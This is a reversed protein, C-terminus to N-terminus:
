RQLQFGYRLSEEAGAIMGPVDVMEALRGELCIVVERISSEQRSLEECFQTFMAHFAAVAPFGAAGAGLLPFALRRYGLERAKHMANRVVERICEESPGERADLDLVVAHFIRRAPLTGPGTIAVDGRRMPIRCRAEEYIEEGGQERICRASGSSMTLYNDDSSVLVDAVVGTVAGQRVLIQGEGVALTGLTLGADEYQGIKQFTVVRLLDDPPVQGREADLLLARLESHVSEQNALLQDYEALAAQLKDQDRNYFRRAKALEDRLSQMSEEKFRIMEEAARVPDERARVVEQWIRELEGRQLELARQDGDMRLRELELYAAPDERKLREHLEHLGNRSRGQGNISAGRQGAAPVSLSEDATSLSFAELIAHCALAIASIPGASSRRTGLRWIIYFGASMVLLGFWGCVAGVLYGTFYAFGPTHYLFRDLLLSIAAAGLLTALGRTAHFPNGGRLGPLPGWGNMYYIMGAIVGTAFALTSVDVAM